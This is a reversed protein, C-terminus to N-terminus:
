TEREGHRKERKKTEAPKAATMKRAVSLRVRVVEVLVTKTQNIM